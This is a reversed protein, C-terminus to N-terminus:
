RDAGAGAPSRSWWSSTPACRRLLRCAEHAVHFGKIFEGAVAAMFLTVTRRITRARRAAALPFRAPDLGWPVVRVRRFFARADGRNPPEGFYGICIATYRTVSSLM